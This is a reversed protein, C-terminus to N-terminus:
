FSGGDVVTSFVLAGDSSKYGLIGDMVDTTETTSIYGLVNSSNRFVIASSNSGADSGGASTVTVNGAILTAGDTSAVTFKNTNYTLITGNDTLLSDGITSAGTAKPLTNTTLSTESGYTGATTGILKSSDGSSSVFLWYDNQSDWVLSASVGSSGSDMVEFGAYREFPSFANLKIINDDLEIVSSSIHVETASGFITLNGSVTLDGDIEIGSVSLSGSSRINGTSNDVEFNGDGIKLTTGNYTLGSYDVLAGGAGVGVIRDQTLDEVVASSLTAEGDVDITDKFQASGTVDLSSNIGVAGQLESTSVVVLTDGLTTSGTVDLSSELTTADGVTLTGATDVNGSSQQVTFNDQGINLETGDFTYNADDELIGNSGVIVVRNDTLGTITVDGEFTTNGEVGLSGSITADGNVTIDDEVTVSGSLTTTGSVVLNGPLTINEVSIGALNINEIYATGSVYLDAWANTPSGLDFSNNDSPLISSSVEGGFQIIDTTQDGITINGTLTINGDVDINGTQYTNGTIYLDGSLTTDGGVDLDSSIEITTGTLGNITVGSIVNGEINGTLDIAVNGGNNLIYLTDDDSSYFPTGNLTTGWNNNSLDPASSGQYIKSVSRFAGASGETEGVFIFPGNLNGVSGTAMVLEGKKATASSLSDIGGRRHKIIQAM